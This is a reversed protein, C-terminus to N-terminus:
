RWDRAINPGTSYITGFVAPTKNFAHALEPTYFVTKQDKIYPDPRPYNHAPYGEQSNKYTILEALVTWKRRASNLITWTGVEGTIDDTFYQEKRVLTDYGEYAFFEVDHNVACGYQAPPAEVSGSQQTSLDVVTQGSLQGGIDLGLADLGVTLSVQWAVTETIGQSTTWPIDQGGPNPNAHDIAGPLSQRMDKWHKHFTQTTTYPGGAYAPAAILCIILAVFFRIM